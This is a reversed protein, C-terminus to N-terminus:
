GTVRVYEASLFKVIMLFTFTLPAVDPTIRKLTLDELWNEVDLTPRSSVFDILCELAGPM